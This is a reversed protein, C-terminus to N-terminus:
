PFVPRNGMPTSPINTGGKSSLLYATTVAGAVVAGVGTWFWWTGYFPKAEATQPAQAALSLDIGAAPLPAPSPAAPPPMTTPTTIPSPPLPAPTVEFPSQTPDTNAQLPQTSKAQEEARIDAIRAEVLSRNPDDAPAKRLFQQFFDLAQENQGLKRHCQGINFLFAPDPKAVYADKYEELAKAYERVEFLRKATEFHALASSKASDAGKSAEGALALPIAPLFAIMALMIFHLWRSRCLQDFM